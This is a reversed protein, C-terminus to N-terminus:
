RGIVGGAMDCAERYHLIIHFLYLRLVTKSFSISFLAVGNSGCRM